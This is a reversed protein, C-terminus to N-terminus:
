AALLWERSTGGKRQFEEWRKACESWNVINWFADIYEPRRNQYKLYYAHEWLDLVLLPTAGKTIPCEHDKTSFVSMKGAPDTVLWAWGNSFHSVAAETFRNKFGNFNGFTSDLARSFEGSPEKEGSPTLLSWFLTHNEHGGGNNRVATRIDAPLEDLTILLEEVPKRLEPHKDLAANLKDVYAKHHGNHHVQMTKADIYPELADYPYPLNPLIYKMM